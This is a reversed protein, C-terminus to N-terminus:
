NAKIDIKKSAKVASPPKPLTVTLVGKKFEADVKDAEVATPLPIARTFSGFSREIRHFNKGKEESEAKKEGSIILADDELTLQIDKEDMGPLEAVVKYEKETESVDIRPSFEGLPSREFVELGFPDEFFRDFMRNMENQFAVMPDYYERRVALKDNRRKLPLINSNM